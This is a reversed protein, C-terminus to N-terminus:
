IFGYQLFQHSCERLILKTAGKFNVVLKGVPNIGYYDGDILQVMM